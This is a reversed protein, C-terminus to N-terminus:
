SDAEVAKNWESGHKMPWHMTQQDGEVLSLIVVLNAGSMQPLVVVVAVEVRVVVIAVM